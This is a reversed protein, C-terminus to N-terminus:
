QQTKQLFEIVLFREYIDSMNPLQVFKNALPSLSQSLNHIM